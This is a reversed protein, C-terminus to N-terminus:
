PLTTFMGDIFNIHQVKGNKHIIAHSQLWASPGMNYDIRLKTSTGVSVAGDKRGPTHSHGTIIKTNLGRFQNLSGKSGHAGLHGHQGVEWGKVIYSDNSGLTIYKPYKRNILEPIVGKIDSLKDAEAYQKLLIQSYEMYEMSNKSTSQKKWDENKLWRDLFDDHNSRVIVVNEFKEFRDLERLMYDIENKLSNTGKVEKRYQAFPDKSDHHSISSGDFIDHLIVHKPVLRNLLKDTGYMVLDDENGFHVDGLICAEIETVETIKSEGTWINPDDGFHDKIWDIKNIANKFELPLYEGEFNVENYLDIFNGESNAMVQRVFFTDDDKIEVIVFGLTHHFEGKKGAKSDTYNKITCAGTTLMMKPKCGSLVPIMEMHVKPSGFICSNIGSMGQMGTMPDIATPQIKVDSMISCYKHIDHRAADLYKLIRPDWRDLDKDTFVSTPNKYRGAIIHISANVKNAYAEINKIFREHIPTNNQAWTIIVRKKKKDFKKNQAKKFEPSDEITKSTLGLKNIWTQVARSSKGTYESLIKLRDGFTINKDLYIKKIYDKDDQTLLKFEM